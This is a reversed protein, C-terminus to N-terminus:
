KNQSVIQNAREQMAPFLDEPVKDTGLVNCVTYRACKSFDQKCYKEKMMEALVPMGSLTDNFFLCGQIKDCEAM